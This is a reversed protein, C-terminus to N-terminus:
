RVGIKLILAECEACTIAIVGDKYSVWTPSKPHCGPHLFIPQDPNHPRKCDPDQCGQNAMHDLDLRTITDM